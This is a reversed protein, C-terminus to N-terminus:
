KEANGVQSKMKKVDATIRGTLIEFDDGTVTKPNAVIEAMM